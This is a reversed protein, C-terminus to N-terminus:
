GLRYQGEPIFVIGQHVTEQLRNIARQLADADDAVGDAHVPFNHRTLYVAKPDDLRVPYYSAAHVLTPFLLTALVLAAHKQNMFPFSIGALNILFPFHFIGVILTSM